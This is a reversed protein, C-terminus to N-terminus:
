SVPAAKIIIKTSHVNNRFQAYVTDYNVEDKRYAKLYDLNVGLRIGVNNTVTLKLEPDSFKFLGEPLDKVFDGLDVSEIQAEDSVTPKFFGYAVKLDFDSIDLKFNVTSAPSAVIPSNGTTIDLVIRLPISSSANYTRMTFPSLNITHETGFTTPTHVISTISPNDFVIKQDPFTLTVKVNEPNIDLNSKNLTIKLKASNVRVSDVRQDLPNTNLGLEMTEEFPFSISSNGPIPTITNPSPQLTKEVPVTNLNMKYERIDWSLTDSYEVFIDSGESNIFDVSDLQNLIDELTLTAEGLPLVLSQDIKLNDGLNEWDVETTCAGFLFAVLTFGSLYKFVTKRKM